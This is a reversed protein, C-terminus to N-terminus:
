RETKSITKMKKLSEVGYRCADFADERHPASAAVLSMVEGVKLVGLRRIILVDEIDWKHRISDSISELEAEADGNLQFEISRTVRDGTKERVLAFHLVVSGATNKLIQDYIDKPEITETTVAQM